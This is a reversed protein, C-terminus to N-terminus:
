NCKINKRLEACCLWFGFLVEPLCFTMTKSLQVAYQIAPLFLRVVSESPTIAKLGQKFSSSYNASLFFALSM